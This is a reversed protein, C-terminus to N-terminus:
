GVRAAESRVVDGSAIGQLAPPQSAVPIGGDSRDYPIGGTAPLALALFLHGDRMMLGLQCFQDLAAEVDEISYTLALEERVKAATTAKESCALYMSALPGGFSHTGPDDPRRLDEIQLLGPTHWWQLSPRVPQQWAQRWQEAVAIIPEYTEGPLSDPWLYEFDYAAAQLDVSAPYVYSLAGSPRLITAPFSIRDEFLPSFREVSLPGQKLPPELHALHPILSVQDEYHASSEGPFGWLLNWSVQIGYHTCWRLLNVNTVAKTGKRMLALVPSSLSEIGPQVHRVGGTKLSRIQERTLNAKIEYFLRYTAGSRELHPAVQTLFKPDLISDVSMLEYSRYRRVLEGLEDILREPSKARFAMSQGNLGCFTCHHKAGWWCGRAGEFPLQVERRAGTALLGLREAREFFEAYDPVPLEDMREFPPGPPSGAVEANRLALVGPVALPDTGDALAVLLAPFALDGEGTVAYDVMPMTRMWERGMEGDFNAGGFIVIIKPYRQKLRRALAFSAVNQQFTSTFGVVRFGDWKVSAMVADLFAPVLRRRVELLSMSAAVDAASAEAELVVGFDAPFRGEIDPTDPGFAEVSFLWDGTPWSLRAINDALRPGLAAAFDLFLHMTEVAFGHSRAIPALTGLQLSPSTSAACPMSVLAVPWGSRREIAEKTLRSPDGLVPGPSSQPVSRSAPKAHPGSIPISGELEFTMETGWNEPAPPM